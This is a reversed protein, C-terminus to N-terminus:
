RQKQFGLNPGRCKRMCVDTGAKHGSSGSIKIQTDKALFKDSTPYKVDYINISDEVHITM